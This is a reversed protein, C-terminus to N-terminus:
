AFIFSLLFGFGLVILLGIMLYARIKESSKTDKQLSNYCKLKEDKTKLLDCRKLKLVFNESYCSANNAASVSSGMALGAALGAVAGATSDAFSVVPVPILILFILLMIISKIPNKNTM